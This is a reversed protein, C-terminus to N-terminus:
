QILVNPTESVSTKFMQLQMRLHAIVSETSGILVKTFELKWNGSM